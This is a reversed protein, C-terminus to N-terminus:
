SSAEVLARALPHRPGVFFEAAPAEEVVRTPGGQPWLCVVHDSLRRAQRVDHTVLLVTRRGRQAGIAREVAAAALADLSSTPEDLLLAEPELVLARALCLRQKQGGSLETAPRDLRDRVEELLGVEALARRIREEREARRGFGHERLPLDLNERISFPFPVPEQFVFGVRRRLTGVCATPDLAEIGHIRASGAARAGPVLDLLRDLALLLTTKGCGSPGLVATTRGRPAGFSVDELVTRGGLSVTLGRVVVGAPEPEPAACREVAPGSM